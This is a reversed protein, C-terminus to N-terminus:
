WAKLFDPIKMDTRMSREILHSPFLVIQEVDLFECEYEQRFLLEGATQRHLSIIDENLRSCKQWPILVKEYSDNNEWAEFFWGRRGNPTSLALLQAKPRAALMPLITNILNDNTFCAEDIVVLDPSYGRITLESAPLSIVRSKNHLELRLESDKMITRPQVAFVCEFVKKFIESSQRLSPSILLCLTNANFMAKHAVKLSATTSKGSQRSCTWLARQATSRLAGVQWDDRELSMVDLLKAPDLAMTLDSAMAGFAETRGSTRKVIKNGKPKAM